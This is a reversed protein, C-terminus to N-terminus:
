TIVFIGKRQKREIKKGQLIRTEKQEKWTIYKNTTQNNVICHDGPVELRGEDADELPEEAGATWYAKIACWHKIIKM